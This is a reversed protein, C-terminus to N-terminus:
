NNPAECVFWTMLTLRQADSLQPGDVPPMVCDYVQSLITTRRGHIQDFTTFPVDAKKGGPAHCTTCVSDFIPKVDAAFSPPPGPCAAPLNQPCNVPPGSHGGCGLALAGAALAVLLARKM